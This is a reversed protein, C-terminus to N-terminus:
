SKAATVRAEQLPPGKVLHHLQPIVQNLQVGGALGLGNVYHVWLDRKKM